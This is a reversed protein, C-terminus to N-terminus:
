NRRLDIAPFGSARQDLPRTRGESMLIIFPTERDTIEFPGHFYEGSHIASSNVWQMEMLLCIAFSYAVSYNASGSGMSTSSSRTKTCEEAVVERSQPDIFENANDLSATSATM